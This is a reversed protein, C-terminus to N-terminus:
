YRSKLVHAQLEFCSLLGSNSPYADVLLHAPLAKLFQEMQNSIDLALGLDQNSYDRRDGPPYHDKPTIPKDAIASLRLTQILFTLKSYTDNPQRGQINM